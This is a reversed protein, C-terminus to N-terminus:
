LLSLILKKLIEPTASGLIRYRVIGNRDIVYTRPVDTVGYSAAIKADPDILLPYSVGLEAAFTRVVERKQGVNVALIELGKQRYKAYLDDMAPMELKCSSCGAQWFHLIVVKGRVSEPIRIPNGNVGPLTVTPLASGIRLAAEAPCTAALLAFLLLPLWLSGNQRGGEKKIGTTIGTDRNM